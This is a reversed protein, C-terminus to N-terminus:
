LECRIMINEESFFQNNTGMTNKLDEIFEKSIINVNPFPQFM